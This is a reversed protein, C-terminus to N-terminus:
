SNLHSKIGAHLGLDHIEHAIICLTQWLTLQVRAPSRVGARCAREPIGSDAVEDDGGGRLSTQREGKMSGLTRNWVETDKADRSATCM